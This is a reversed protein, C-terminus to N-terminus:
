QLPLFLLGPSVYAGGMYFTVYYLFEFGNDYNRPFAFISQESAALESGGVFSQM